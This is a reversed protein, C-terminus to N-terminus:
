NGKNWNIEIDDGKLDEMDAAPYMLYVPKSDNHVTITGYGEKYFKNEGNKYIWLRGEADSDARVNFLKNRPYRQVGPLPRQGEDIVQIERMNDPVGCGTLIHLSITSCILLVYKM